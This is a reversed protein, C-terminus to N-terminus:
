SLALSELVTLTERATKEWSFRKANRFGKEILDRRLNEDTLVRLIADGISEVDLPDIYLAADGASEPTGGTQSAV